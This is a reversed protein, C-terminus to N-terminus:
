YFMVAVLLSVAGKNSESLGAIHFKNEYQLIKNM